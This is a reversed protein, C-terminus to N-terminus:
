THVEAALFVAKSRGWSLTLLERLERLRKLWRHQSEKVAVRMRVRGYPELLRKLEIPSLLRASAYPENGQEVRNRNLPADRNLTGVVVRGTPKVCRFMEKVVAEADTVFELTAMAAVVDFSADDFPLRRADAVQFTCGAPGRARAVEVMEASIDVGTVEYGLSGFWASWHGTGCGVELLREGRGAPPLLKAVAEKEMRDYMKGLPGDYWRDYGAALPGFDYLSGAKEDM